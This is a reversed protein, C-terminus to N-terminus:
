ARWRSASDRHVFRSLGAPGAGRVADALCIDTCRGFLRQRDLVSGARFLRARVLLRVTRRRAHGAVKRSGRRRDALGRGSLDPVAGAVCQLAGDRVVVARGGGARHGCAEMGLGPHDFSRRCSAHQSIEGRVPEMARARRHMRQGAACQYRARHRPPKTAPTARSTGQPRRYAPTQGPASRRRAGRDRFQGSRCHGRRAGAPPWGAGGSLRGADRSGRRGRRHHIGRRDHHPRGRPQRPCGRHVLRRGSARNVAARRQRARRRNRRRDTRRHGRDVGARRHRWIRRGGAGSPHALGADAGAPRDRADVAARVPAQPHHQRGGAAIRPRRRAPRPGGPFAEQAEAQQHRRRAGERDHVGAPRPHSRHRRPRRPNRRLGRPAFAGCERVPGDTRGTSHRAQRRRYRRSAGDRRRHATRAPRPYQAAHHARHRLLGVDDPTSADLVVQLDARVSGPKWGFLTRIARMLWNDAAPRLVEGEQVVVPLNPTDRPNDQTPDSDPM